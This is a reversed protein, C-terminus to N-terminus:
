TPSCLEVRETTNHICTGLIHWVGFLGELSLVVAGEDNM